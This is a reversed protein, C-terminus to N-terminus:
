VDFTSDYLDRKVQSVTPSAVGAEVIESPFIIGFVVEGMGDNLRNKMQKFLKDRQGPGSKKLEIVVRTGRNRVFVDPEGAQLQPHPSASIGYGELIDAFATSVVYEATKRSM